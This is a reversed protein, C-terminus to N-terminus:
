QRYKLRIKCCPSTCVKWIKDSPPDSTLLLTQEWRLDFDQIDDNEMKISFLRSLGQIEDYSGTLRFYEYILYAIQRWRLFLNGTISKPTVLDELSKAAEIEKIWLLALTPNKAKSCVETRFNVIWRQFETHDPFKGLHMESSPFSPITMGNQTCTGIGSAHDTMSVISNRDDLRKGRARASFCPLPLSHLPEEIERREFGGRKQIGPPTALNNSDNFLEEPERRATQRDFVNDPISTEERTNRQLRSDRCPKKSSSPTHAQHSVYASGSSNPSDPDQFINSDEIFDLRDQLIRLQDKLLIVTRSEQDQQMAHESLKRYAIENEEEYCRRKLECIEQCSRAHYEQHLRNKM